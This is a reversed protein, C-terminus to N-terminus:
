LNISIWDLSVIIWNNGMEIIATNNINIPSDINMELFSLSILSIFSYFLYIFRYIVYIIKIIKRKWNTKALYSNIIENEVLNSTVLKKCIFSITRSYVIRWRKRAAYKKNNKRKSFFDLSVMTM